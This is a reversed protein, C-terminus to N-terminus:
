DRDKLMNKYIKVITVVTNKWENKAIPNSKSEWADHPNIVHWTRAALIEKDEDTM